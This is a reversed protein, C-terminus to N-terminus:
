VSVVNVAFVEANECHIRPMYEGPPLQALTRDKWRVVHRLSDGEIPTADDSSYGRVRRGHEDLLEVRIRGKSAEANITIESKEFRIPKLTIQGIKDIPRVGAFRDRRMTALGIGSKEVHEADGTAGGSYGGYYFRIEDDLVIPTTNTFVCASDFAGPAGRPLFFPKRFPRQFNIGDRSIALEIDMSGGNEARNLIQPCAFYVGAYYFVPTTHFEVYDPDFEDPTMVLQPQSWNIFDKSETRAAAHKWYMKGDPGDIWMKGYIAFVERVPDWMVDLADAMSLPVSWPNSHDDAFPLEDGRNGYSCPLLPAKPYKTWHVGDPSFAVCLGPLDKSGATKTFDFHSLKYRKNPDPDRPDFMVSAGYRDSYGGNAVVVINTDKIDGYPFLGLKPKEWTIGDASTAYSITCRTEKTPASSGAYTQYWIQYRGTKADRHVSCWAIDQEWPKQKNPILAETSHRILPHLVRKTGPRYLVHHDDVLLLTRSAAQPKAPPGSGNAALLVEAPAVAGLAAAALFRRRTTM